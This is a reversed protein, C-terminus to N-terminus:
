IGDQFATLRWRDDIRVFTARYDDKTRVDQARLFGSRGNILRIEVWEPDDSWQVIKIPATEYFAVIMSDPQPRAFVPVNDGLVFGANQRQFRIDLSQQPCAFVPACYRARSVFVGPARSVIELEQWFADGWEPDELWDVFIDRGNPEGVSVQVDEDTMAALAEVDKDQIAQVFAARFQEFDASSGENASSAPLTVAIGIMLTLVSSLLWLHKFGAAGM